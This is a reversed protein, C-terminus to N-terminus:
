FLRVLQGTLICQLQQTGDRLVIFLLEKGQRRIRHCWGKVQIREGKKTHSVAIKFEKASTTNKDNLKISKAAELREKELAQKQAQEHAQEQQRQAKKEAALALKAARKQASASPAASTATTSDQDQDQLSLADM